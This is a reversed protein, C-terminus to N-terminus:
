FGAIFLLGDNGAHPLIVPGSLYRSIVRGLPISNGIGENNKSQKISCQCLVYPLLRIAKILTFTQILKSCACIDTNVSM